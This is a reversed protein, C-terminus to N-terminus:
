THRTRDNRKWANSHVSAAARRGGSGDGGAAQRKSNPERPARRAPMLWALASWAPCAFPGPVQWCQYKVQLSVPQLHWVAAVVSLHMAPGFSAGLYSKAAKLAKLTLKTLKPQCYSLCIALFSVFNSCPFLFCDGLWKLNRHVREAAKYSALQLQLVYFCLCYIFYINFCM